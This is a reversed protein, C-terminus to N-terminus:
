RLIPLSHNQQQPLDIKKEIETSSLHSPAPQMQGGPIVPMSGNQMTIWGGTGSLHSPTPQMQGGPIVPISGKQMGRSGVLLCRLHVKLYM